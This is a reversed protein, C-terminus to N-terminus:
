VAMLMKAFAIQRMALHFPHPFLTFTCSGGIAVTSTFVVADSPILQGLPWILSGMRHSLRRQGLCQPLTWGAVKPIVSLIVGWLANNEATRMQM